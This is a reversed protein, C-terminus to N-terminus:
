YRVVYVEDLSKAMMSRKFTHVIMPLGCIDLIAKNPLRNSELRAPVLGIIKM